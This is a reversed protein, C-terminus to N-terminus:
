GASSNDYLKGFLKWKRMFRPVMGKGLSTLTAKPLKKLNGKLSIETSKIRARVIAMEKHLDDLSDIHSLNNDITKKM